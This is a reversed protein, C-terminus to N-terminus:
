KKQFGGGGFKFKIKAERKNIKLIWIDREFKPLIEM